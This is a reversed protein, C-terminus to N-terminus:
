FNFYLFETPKGLSVGVALAMAAVAVAWVRRPRWRWASQRMAQRLGAEHLAPYYHATLQMSNPLFLAIALMAVMLAMGFLDPLFNLRGADVVVGLPALWGVAGGLMRGAVPPLALGNFGAMSTLISVASDMDKARFFVWAVVVANFTLAWAVLRPLRWGVRDRWLHAVVLYSGHLAGWAIFTWGAGHWFGGLVMTLMLNVYRRGPGRRNGGLAFYLYDRLFRSLTMHWRRWFDIISTSRYPSFFNIPLRVGFLLSVGVAVDSYGSFDFYIQLTYALAGGWAELMSLLEGQGATSFVTEVYGSLGDALVVKKFLGMVMITLGVALYDWRLRFMGPRSFQPMMEGHHLIPGSLLHPFYTAFLGYSVPNLDKAKGRAVDVLFAIQTFTFFSIGLPLHGAEVQLGFLGGFFGAYKYWGLLLLNGAVAVTLRSSVAGGRQVAGALGMGMLYNFVVSVLLVSVDAPNWWGYFFLSAALLWAMGWQRRWRALALFVLLTIPLFQFLFVTSNFLM